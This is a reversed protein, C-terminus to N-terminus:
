SAAFISYRSVRWRSNASSYTAAIEATSGSAIAAVTVAPSGTAVVFGGAGSALTPTRAGGSATLRWVVTQGDLPNTPAGLTRNGAITCDFLNGLSADTAITAADSLTIARTPAPRAPPRRLTSAYTASDGDLVIRQLVATNGPTANATAGTDAYINIRDYVSPKADYGNSDTLISVTASPEIYALGCRFVSNSGASNFLTSGNRLTVHVLDIELDNANADASVTTAFQEVNCNILRIHSTSGTTGTFKWAVTGTNAPNAISHCTIWTVQNLNGAASDCSYAVANTGVVEVFCRDITMDGSNFESTQNLLRIGNGTGGVEMNAMRARFVNGLDIAWGSHSGDWPGKVQLREFSSFWASRYLAAPTASYTAVIGSSSGGVEIGLDSIHVRVAKSLNFASAVGSGVVLTTNSPGAGRIYIEGEVDADDAGWVDVVDALNFTGSTLQVTGGLATATVAAQLQVDDATGDCVWDADLIGSDASAVVLTNPLSSGGGGSTGDSPQMVWSLGSTVHKLRIPGTYDDPAKFQPIVGASSSVVIGSPLAVGSGDQIDTLQETNAYNWVEFNQSAPLGAVQTTGITVPTIVVDDVSGGYITRALM